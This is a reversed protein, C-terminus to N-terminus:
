SEEMPANESASPNSLTHLCEAILDTNSQEASSALVDSAQVPMTAQVQVIDELNAATMALHMIKTLDPSPVPGGECKRIIKCRAIEVDDPKIPQIVNWHKHVHPQIQVLIMYMQGLLDIYQRMLDAVNTSRTLVKSRKMNKRVRQKSKRKLAANEM